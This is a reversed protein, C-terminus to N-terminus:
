VIIRNKYLEEYIEKGKDTPSMKHELKNDTDWLISVNFYPILKSVFNRQIKNKYQKEEEENTFEKDLGLIVEEVGLKKMMEIQYSHLASGCIAVAISNDYYSHHQLVGKESELILIKRYKKINNKHKDIGYLNMSTPYNYLIDKHVIPMYKKGEEVIEKILNRCRIGLLNGDIDFHPIIIRHKLLDFKIGFEIMSQKSIHDDLWSQHFFNWFDDLVSADRFVFPEDHNEKKFKNIFSHDIKRQQFGRGFMSIGLRISVFNIAEQISCHKIKAILQFISYNRNCESFCHFHKSDSYYYLKHSDGGHCIDTGFILGNPHPKPSFESFESLIDIVDQDTLREEIQKPTM